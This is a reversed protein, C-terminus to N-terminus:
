KKGKNTVEQLKQKIAGIVYAKPSRATRTGGVLSALFDTFYPIKEQGDILTKKNKNIEEASFDWTYKLYDYVRTDLQFQATVKSQQEVKQLAKDQNEEHFVPYFNYGIIKSTKKDGDREETVAFSYPSTADLEKQAPDIIRKRLDRPAKYKNQVGFMERLEDVTMFYPKKQGSMLEYFRMTYPSKFKMATVLEYKRFGKSFDLMMGWVWDSVDFRMMGNGKTIKVNYILATGQWTKGDDWEVFKKGLSRAAKKVEEYNTNRQEETSVAGLIATIPMEMTVSWLNKQMKCLHDKIKVGEIEEQAREILRYLIRKENITFQYKATTLIYSQIVNRNGKITRAMTM